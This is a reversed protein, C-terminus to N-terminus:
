GRKMLRAAEASMRLTVPMPALRRAVAVAIAPPLALFIVAGEPVEKPALIPRAFNEHGHRSPDEDVFFHVIDGLNGYLWNAAISTGFLGFCGPPADVAARRAAEILDDFSAVQDVVANRIEAASSDSPAAVPAPAARAVLTLEKPIWDSALREIEFGARHVLRSLSDRTFHCLHDAILLDFPNLEFNIVEVILRGGPTLKSRVTKLIALPDPFHELAHILTIVTFDEAVGDLNGIKLEVFGPIEELVAQNRDDLDLGYLKWQPHTRGAAALTAGAGCGVDLLTVTGPFHLEADLREFLVDSRRRPVGTRSDFVAQEIGGSQRYVTYDRYIEAIEGLWVPDVIKQVGGCVDCIAIRGGARFPVCDSTVRRLKAFGPVDGLAIAGCIKCTKQEPKDTM